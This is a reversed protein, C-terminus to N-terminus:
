QKHESEWEAITSILTINILVIKSQSIINNNNKNSNKYPRMICYLVICYINLMKKIHIHVTHRCYLYIIIIILVSLGDMYVSFRIPSIIGGQKVGNSVTFSPFIANSSYKSTIKSADQVNKRKLFLM